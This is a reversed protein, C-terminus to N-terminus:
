VEDLLHGFKEKKTKLYKKNESNPLTEIKIRKVVEIDSEEISAVKAPNNTLINIKRIGLDHLIAIAADYTREDYEFGLAVNAEATDYGEDQKVYAHLKNILGIGRGEQRLYIILGGNKTVYDMAQHLQDGCECRKSGFVDGTLCESHIRVNVIENLDTGKALLALHPMAQNDENSYAIFDFDGDATPLNVSVERKIKQQM